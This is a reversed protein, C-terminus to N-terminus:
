QAVGTKPYGRVVDWVTEQMLLAAEASPADAPTGDARLLDHPLGIPSQHYLVAYHTLAVLYAGLDNVHIPDLTGDSERAFLDERGKIGKVGGRDEVARVFRAMVQGAPIVHIARDASGALDPLLVKNEWLKELDTDLRALWGVADDLRHWSEYLYVQTTPSSARALDAWKSLYKASDHYKIADKLEVMETLIVADYEGSSVAEKADRYRPHDNEADFGNITEGPEWHQKLSTGWGLQSEYQHEPAALQALMAPMDRGVLSHGLHFVRLPRDPAPLSTAYAADVMAPDPQRPRLWLWWVVAVVILLVPVLVFLVRLPM